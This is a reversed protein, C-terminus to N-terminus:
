ATVQQGAIAIQHALTKAQEIVEGHTWYTGDWENPRYATPDPKPLGAEVLEYDDWMDRYHATDFGVWGDYTERGYTRAAREGYAPHTVAGYTLGGHVRADIQDYELDAWPHDAPIRAYGNISTGQPSAQTRWEIGSEVGSELAPQSFPKNPNIKNDSM